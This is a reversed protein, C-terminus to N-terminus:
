LYSQSEWSLNVVRCRRMRGERESVEVMKMGGWSRKMVFSKRPAVGVEAGGGGDGVTYNGDTSAGDGPQEPTHQSLPAGDEDFFGTESARKAMESFLRPFLCIFDYILFYWTCIQKM